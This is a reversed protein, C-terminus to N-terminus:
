STSSPPTRCRRSRQASCCWTRSTGDSNWDRNDVEEDVRYYAVDNDSLVVGANNAHGALPPGPSDLDDIPDFRAFTPISDISNSDGGTNIPTGHVGEQYSSRPLPFTGTAHFGGPKAWGNAHVLLVDWRGNEDADVAIVGETWYKTPVPLVGVQEHFQQGAARQAVLGLVLCSCGFRL